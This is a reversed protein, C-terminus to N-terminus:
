SNRHNRSNAMLRIKRNGIKNGIKARWCGGSGRFQNRREPIFQNSPARLHCQPDCGYCIPIDFLELGPKRFADSAQDVGPLPNLVGPHSQIFYGSPNGPRRHDLNLLVPFPHGPSGACQQRGTRSNLYLFRMDFKLLITM